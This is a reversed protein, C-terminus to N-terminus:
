SGNVLTEGVTFFMNCLPICDKSALVVLTEGVMFSMNCLPVCDKPALSVLTEGVTCDHQMSSYLGEPAM